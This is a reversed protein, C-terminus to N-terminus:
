AFKAIPVFTEPKLAAGGVLAGDINEKAMLQAVNDAKVSGGYQIILKQAADNGYLRGIVKRIYAHIAEADEPSATKGTGIAWVPEYAITVKAFDAASVGSLGWLTQCECVVEAQGAEREQLTEGVCLIVDFGHKLALKVKKNILADDEKYTHRRESHGLIVVQVGLDKLQLVSVEGTHAGLEEAAVDQAGLLVNTGKVIAAVTELSTFSPAVLYKHKGDKLQSVLAKALEAAEARNKHMKWNGAIYYQRSM